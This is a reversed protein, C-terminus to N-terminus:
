SVRKTLLLVSNLCPRQISTALEPHRSSGRTVTTMTLVARGASRSM